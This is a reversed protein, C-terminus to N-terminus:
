KRSRALIHELLLMVGPLADRCCLLSLVWSSVFSLLSGTQPASLGPSALPLLMIDHSDTAKPTDLKKASHVVPKRLQHGKLQPSASGMGNAYNM